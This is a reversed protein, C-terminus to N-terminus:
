EHVELCLQPWNFHQFPILGIDLWKSHVLKTLSANNNWFSFKKKLSWSLFSLDMQGAQTARQPLLDSFMIQKKKNAWLNVWIDSSLISSIGSIFGWSYDSLSNSDREIQRTFTPLPFKMTCWSYYNNCMGLAEAVLVQAQIQAGTFQLIDLIHESVWM